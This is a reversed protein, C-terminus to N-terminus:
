MVNPFGKALEVARGQRQTAIAIKLPPASSSFAAHIGSLFNFAMTGGGIVVLRFNATM